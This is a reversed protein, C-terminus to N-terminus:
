EIIGRADDTVSSGLLAARDRGIIVHTFGLVTVTALANCLYTSWDHWFESALDVISNHPEEGAHAQNKTNSHPTSADPQRAKFLDRLEVNRFCEGAPAATDGLFLVELVSIAFTVDIDVASCTEEDFVIHKELLNESVWQLFLV